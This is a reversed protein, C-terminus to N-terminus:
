LPSSVRRWHTNTSVGSTSFTTSNMPWCRPYGCAKMSAQIYQHFLRPHFLSEINGFPIRQKFIRGRSITCLWTPDVENSCLVSSVPNYGPLASQHVLQFCCTDNAAVLAAFCSIHQELCLMLQFLIKLRKTLSGNLQITHTLPKHAFPM